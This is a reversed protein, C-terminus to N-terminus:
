ISVEHSLPAYRTAPHQKMPKRVTSIVKSSGASGRSVMCSLVFSVIGHARLSCGSDVFVGTRIVLNQIMVIIEPAPHIQRGWKWLCQGRVQALNGPAKTPFQIYGELKLTPWSWCSSWSQIEGRAHKRCFSIRVLALYHKRNSVPADHDIMIYTICTKLAICISIAICITYLVYHGQLLVHWIVADDALAIVFSRDSIDLSLGSGSPGTPRAVYM